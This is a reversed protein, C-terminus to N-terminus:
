SRGRRSQTSLHEVESDFVQTSDFQDINKGTKGGLSVLGMSVLTAILSSGGYSILPLTIGTVPVLGINMGINVVTQFILMSIVGCILLFGFLDSTREALTLSYGILFLYIALILIAGMFGLEEAISAFIFDTRFEPLFQLRSQTGQGLGRGFIQGSGVAITSQILNYGVGLPDSGPSLFSTVRQRQYDYLTFWSIPIVLLAILGLSLLKKASVRSAFLLGVWIVLITLTTGLDPQKFLLILPLLVWLFSKFINQWTPLNNAWFRALLLIIAPKLFESPQLNLFGLTIWRTSGRIEIGIILVLILLVVTSIYFPTVFNNLSQYDFKSIILYLFLGVLSFILQQFALEPSSSYIVLIGISLLFLISLTIPLNVGKLINM